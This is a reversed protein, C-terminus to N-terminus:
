ATLAALCRRRARYLLYWESNRAQSVERSTRRAQGPSRITCAIGMRSSHSRNPLTTPPEDGSRVGLEGRTVFNKFVSEPLSLRLKEFVLQRVRILQESTLPSVEPMAPSAFRKFLKSVGVEAVEGALIKIVEKIADLVFPTSLLAAAEGLGFGLTEDKSIQAKLTKEPNQFYAESIIRFLPLEQPATQAVIDRSLDTILQTHASAGGM